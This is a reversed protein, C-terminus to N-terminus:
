RKRLEVQLLWAQQQFLRHRLLKTDMWRAADTVAKGNFFLMPAFPRLFGHHNIRVHFHRELLEISARDFPHEDPTRLKPTLKRFARLLFNGQAPEIFRAYGGASLKRALAPGLRALDLHHLVGDGFAYDVSHDPITALENANDVRFDFRPPLGLARCHEVAAASIDIGVFQGRFGNLGRARDGRFCGLELVTGDMRDPPVNSFEYVDKVSAYAYGLHRDDPTGIRADHFAAEYQERKAAGSSDHM